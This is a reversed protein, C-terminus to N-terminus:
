LDIVDIDQNFRFHFTDRICTRMALLLNKSTDVYPAELIEYLQHCHPLKHAIPVYTAPWCRVCTKGRERIWPHRRLTGSARFQNQINSYRWVAFSYVHLISYDRQLAEKPAILYAPKCVDDIFQRQHSTLEGYWLDLTPWRDVQALHDIQPPVPPRM